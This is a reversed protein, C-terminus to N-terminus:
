RPGEVADRFGAMTSQLSDYGSVNSYQTRVQEGVQVDLGVERLVRAFYMALQHRPNFVPDRRGAQGIATQTAVTYELLRKIGDLFEPLVDTELDDTVLLASRGFEMARETHKDNLANTRQVDLEGRARGIATLSRRATAMKAHCGDIEENCAKMIKKDLVTAPRALVNTLRELDAALQEELLLTDTVSADLSQIQSTLTSVDQDYNRPPAM